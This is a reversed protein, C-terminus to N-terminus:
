GNEEPIPVEDTLTDEDGLDELYVELEEVVEEEGNGTPAEKLHRIAKKTNNRVSSRM